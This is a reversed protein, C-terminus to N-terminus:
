RPWPCRASTATRSPTCPTTPSCWRCGCGRRTFRIQLRPTRWRGTPRYAWGAKVLAVAPADTLFQCGLAAAFAECTLFRDNPEKAMARVLAAEVSEPADPRADRLRPPPDERHARLLAGTDAADFARRGTLLEYGILALAYQDTRGDCPLGAAQEPSAYRPTGAFRWDQETRFERALGLDLIKYQGYETARINAPKLDRHVVHRAHAFHLAQALPALILRAEDLPVRGRRALTQDLTEGGVYEFVIYPDDGQYGYDFVTAIAPHNLQAGIRAEEAFSERLRTSAFTGDAWRPDRPRIVKVAVPRGLVPDHGLYVLGMGGRGLVRDIRYRGIMAPGAAPGASPDPGAPGTEDPEGGPRRGATTAPDTPGAATADDRRGEASM